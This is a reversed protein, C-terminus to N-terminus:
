IRGVVSMNSVIIVANSVVVTIRKFDSNSTALNFNSPSVNTVIVRRSFGSFDPILIGEITRPPSEFLNTYDDVDDFNVRYNTPFSNTSSFEKSRIENMLEEALLNASQLARQREMNRMSEQFVTALALIAIGAVTVAVILEILTFANAQKQM